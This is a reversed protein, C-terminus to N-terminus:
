AAFSGTLTPLRETTIFSALSWRLVQTNPDFEVTGGGVRGESAGEAAAHGPPRRDGTPTASVSTATSGLFISVVIDELPHSALRSALTLSFRGSLHILVKDGM